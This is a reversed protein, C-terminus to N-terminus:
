WFFSIDGSLFKFLALGSIIVVFVHAYTLSFLRLVICCSFFKPQSKTTHVSLFSASSNGSHDKHFFCSCTHCILTDLVKYGPFSFPPFSLPLFACVLTSLIQFVHTYPLIRRPQSFKESFLSPIPQLSLWFHIRYIDGPTPIKLVHVNTM